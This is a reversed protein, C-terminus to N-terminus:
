AHQGEIALGIEVLLDPDVHHDDAVRWTGLKNSIFFSSGNMYTIRYGAEAELRDPKVDLQLPIGTSPDTVTLKM